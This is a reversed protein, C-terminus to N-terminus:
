FTLKVGLQVSRREVTVGAANVGPPTGRAGVVTGVTNFATEDSNLISNVVNSGATAFMNSHNFINLAEVHFELGVREGLAFRKAVAADFTWLGPLRFLNRPSLLNPHLQYLDATCALNAPDGTDIIGTQQTCYTAQTTFASSLDYLTFTNAGTYTQQQKPVSGSLVPYCFDTFDRTCQADDITDYVTFAGGTQASYVGSLSWGDLIQKGVGSLSKAFPLEYTYAMVFRHRIDNSSTTYDAGPNYPDRFGFQGFIGDYFSDGFFSSSNDKWNAYTYSGNLMLGHLSRTKIEASVANYRSFGENGRRNTGSVGTQNLRSAVGATPNCVENTDPSRLCSGRQNLNNLSYLKDGKTGKYTVSAIVGKHLIDHEVGANWEQSYATVMNRDLMRASGTVPFAGTGLLNTLLTYSNADVAGVVGGVVATNNNPANQIVNFLANGFNKDYFMGYGARIATGGNGFVDWALGIRPGFNNWDQNFFNNTRQFRGDRVQDYITKSPNLPTPSGTADFYFNADLAREANPSHLVGFYEWRMGLTLTFRNTLRISDEGYLSVENYRYHRGFNPATLPGDVAPDYVEGPVHGKPDIALLYTGDFQGAVMNEPTTFAGTGGEFAAFVHNDRLTAFGAGWKFTHRGKALTFGTGGSITNQPGGARLSAFQCLNPIYGPFVIPNGDPSGILNPVQLCPISPDGTGNPNEPDTRMFNIRSENVMNASFTHTLTTGYNSSRFTRDSRFGPWPSDSAAVASAGLPNKIDTLAYRFSLRTAPTFSHDIKAVANWTDGGTGGGADIPPRTTTKCFFPTDEAINLGTNPNVFPDPGGGQRARFDAASMCQSSDSAPLPGGSAVYAAMNPAVNDVFQQTPVWWFAVGQSRVRVGELAGFFFTKDKIIPGGAAFTFDNRVFNPKPTGNEKNQVTNATLAAGRYYESASGHFQNTGSKTVVNTVVANRGFEATMSNSQVKFEQVTDNPVLAAPGTIFTENNDSGDLLYSVSSTRQGGVAFGQGRVDGVGAATDTAGAALGILAYPNKTLLPLNELQASTITHAVDGSTTNVQVSAAEVTMVESTAGVQLAFDETLRDAVNVVINKEITAFGEKQASVKYKGPLVNAFTYSGEGGSKTEQTTQQEINTLKVTADTVVAGSKDTIRGYITGFQTQSFMLSSLMLVLWGLVAWRFRRTFASEM